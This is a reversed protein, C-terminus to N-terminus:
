CGAAVRVDPDRSGSTINRSDGWGAIFPTGSGPKAVLGNYDGFYCNSAFNDFNPVMQPPPFAVETLRSDTGWTAGGNTSQDMYVDMALNDPDNRRDYWTVSIVTQPPSGVARTTM